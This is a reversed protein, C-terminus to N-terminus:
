NEWDGHELAQDSPERKGRGKSGQVVGVPRMDEQPDRCIGGVM